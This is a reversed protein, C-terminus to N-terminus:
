ETLELELCHNPLNHYRIATQVIDLFNTERFQRPSLNVAVWISPRTKRWHAVDQCAQNLIWAGLEAILGTEEAIPIFQDPFIAGLKENQWRMLAEVGVVQNNTLDVLPQYLAYIEKKELAHRMQGEIQRREQANENMQATFFKFGNRGDRKVRYMATDANRLLIDIEAGDDPYLTIGISTSVFIEEEGLQFPSELASLIKLSVREAQCYDNLNTLIILFEDGGLRAVTDSQRLCGSLRQATQVLIQDGIDHGLTNNINKFNDLDLFMVAVKQHTRRAQVISQQLRDFVLFRNSLHTLADHNAQYSLREEQLKRETIDEKVGVFHTIQGEYNYIPSISAIEWFLEGNKRRNCLEGHWENGSIITQWLFQYVEPAINGSKLLRPNQGIVEQATYGTLEEFKPNVYEINGDINTIIISAPSQEVARWLIQLKEDTRKSETIDNISVLYASLNQWSILTNRLQAIRLGKEANFVEIETSENEIIPLGLMEGLLQASPRGFLTEASSNAFLVTGQRDLVLIANIDGQIITKLREESEKLSRETEQYQTIDHCLVVTGLRNQHTDFILQFDLTLWKNQCDILCNLTYTKTREGAKKFDELKEGIEGLQLSSLNLFSPSTLPQLLRIAADNADIFRYHVDFILVADKSHQFVARYSDHNASLNRSEGKFEKM